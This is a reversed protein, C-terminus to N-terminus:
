SITYAVSCAQVSVNSSLTDTPNKEFFSISGAPMTCSGLVNSESDRRTIVAANVAYIRVVSADNITNATTLGQEASILKVIM